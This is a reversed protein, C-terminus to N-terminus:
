NKIWHEDENPAEGNVTYLAKLEDVYKELLRPRKTKFSPTLLGNAVNFGQLLEDLECELIIDKVREFKKLEGEQEKMSKFVMEKFVEMNETAISLFKENFEPTTPVLPPTESKWLGKKILQKSAWVADPVVVAVVFSKFSNGYVWIQGCSPAKQYAAEVKEVAIYEGFATKFLNKKRDIISLSGNPNIRGVDGTHLWGDVITENTKEENKLYGLMVSPARILIEGRPNEDTTMYNMDPIDELRIDVGGLPIGVHGLNVDGVSTVVSGGTTETLGYGQFVEGKVAIIRLFEALYPPLPAAGSLIYKVDQFGVQEAVGKWVHNDYTSSRQGKKSSASSAALAKNFIMKKFCSSGSVKAMVKDYVKGFVRPVGIVITPRVGQWDITLMKINGQYYYVCGGQAILSTEVLCEFIHALPLFSLHRDGPGMPIQDQVAYTIMCFGEHPIRVGKPTGTTGSTYMLFCVDRKDVNAPAVVETSRGMELLESLGMINVNAAKGMDKMKETVIEGPNGYQEQFDFVIIHEVQTKYEPHDLSAIMNDIAKPDCFAIKVEAHMLIYAVAEDGLTDYLATTQFGQRTNALHVQFWEARNKSYLGITDYQKAGIQTLGSAILECAEKTQSYNMTEFDGRTGDELYPRWGMCPQDGFETASADFVAWVNDMIKGEKVPMDFGDPHSKNRYVPSFGPEQSGPVEIIQSEKDKLLCEDYSLSSSSGGM